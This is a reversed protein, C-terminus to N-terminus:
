LASAPLVDDRRAHAVVGILLAVLADMERIPVSFDAADESGLYGPPRPGQREVTIFAVNGDPMPVTLTVAWRADPAVSISGLTRRESGEAEYPRYRRDADYEAHAERLTHVRSLKPGTSYTRHSSRDFAPPRLVSASM